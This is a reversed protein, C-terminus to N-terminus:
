KDNRKLYAIFKEIARTRHSMTHKEDGLQAYTRDYGDPEFIGDWGFRTEGREKVIRGHVVGEFFEITDGSAYGIVTRATSTHTDYRLVLESVGRAGLETIFHKILPGPLRGMCDFSLSTDEVIIDESTHTRAAELKARIIEHPDLSQIEPLDLDLQEIGPIHVRMERLKNENGTVFRM